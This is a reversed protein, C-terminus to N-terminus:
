AAMSLMSILTVGVRTSISGNNPDLTNLVQLYKEGLIYLLLVYRHYVSILYAGLLMKGKISSPARLEGVHRVCCSCIRALFEWVISRAIIM